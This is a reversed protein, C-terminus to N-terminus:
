FVGDGFVLRVRCDIAGLARQSFSSLDPPIVSRRVEIAMHRPSCRVGGPVGGSRCSRVLELDIPMFALKVSEDRGMAYEWANLPLLSRFVSATQWVRLSQVSVSMASHSAGIPVINAAMIVWMLRAARTLFHAKRDNGDTRNGPRDDPKARPLDAQDCGVPQQREDIEDAYPAPQSPLARIFITPLGGLHCDCPM